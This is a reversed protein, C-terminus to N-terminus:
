GYVGRVWLMMLKPVMSRDAHADHHQRSAAVADTRWALSVKANDRLQCNSRGWDGAQLLQEGMVECRECWGGYNAVM